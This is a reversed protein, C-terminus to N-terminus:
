QPILHIYDIAIGYGTSSANKGTVTFRFAKDSSTGPTWTGLDVETFDENVNYQDVPSGVNTPSGLQDARSIALQWQGKNNWNKLGVRIDYTAIAINPVNFTISQGTATADFYAGSNNSFRGDDATRYTIGATQTIVNLTEAEYWSIVGQGYFTGRGNTGVFVRGATQWSGAIAMPTDGLCNNSAQINIWSAGLDPSVYISDVTDGYTRGFLYIAAPGGNNIPKGFGFQWARNVNGLKSWHVGGDSSHYLGEVNGDRTGNNYNTNDYDVSLWLDGAVDPRAGLIWSDIWTTPLGSQSVASFSQGSNTSAYLVGSSSADNFYYFKGGISGDAVLNKHFSSHSPPTPLGSCTQWTGGGDTTYLWPSNDTLSSPWSNGTSDSSYDSSCIVVMNNGNTPSVACCRPYHTTPFGSLRSWNAGGNTSKMVNLGNRGATNQAGIRLMNQPNTREYDLMWTHGNWTGTVGLAHSPCVDLTTSSFAFGDDDLSGILVEYTGSPPAIIGNVCDEEHNVEQQVWAVSSANYNTTRWSNCWLTGSNLPDFALCSTWMSGWNSFWPATSDQTNSLLTWNTGTNTTHYIKESGAFPETTGVFIESSNSPNVALGCYVAASGGPTFNTWAGSNWKSVGSGHTYWASGSSSVQIRRPSTNGGISTFTAGHDTSRYVGSGSVGVYVVGNKAPDFAVTQVGYSDAATPVSTVQSWSSGGNSSRWLGQNRSGFLVVSSNGPDVQLREGAWRRDGNGSMQINSLGAQTWSNGGDTSKFVAGTSRGAAYYLTNANSPDIALSECQFYDRQDFTLFDTLPIWRSNTRDWKFVGGVDTRICVTGSPHVIVGTVLCQAGSVAVSKWVRDAAKASSPAGAYTLVFSAALASTILGHWFARTVRAFNGPFNKCHVGGATPVNAPLSHIRVAASAAFLLKMTRSPSVYNVSPPVRARFYAAGSYLSDQAERM